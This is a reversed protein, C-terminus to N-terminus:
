VTASWGTPKRAAVTLTIGRHLRGALWSEFDDVPRWVKLRRGIKKKLRYLRSRRYPMNSWHAGLTAQELLSFGADELHRALTPQDLWNEVPQLGQTGAKYRAEFRANPTTLLLLGGPALIRFLDTIFPEHVPCHEIVESSVILRYSDDALPTPFSGDGAIVRTKPHRRGVEELVSPTVDFADVDGLSLSAMLPIFRGSGCGYDLVRPARNIAEVSARYRGLARLMWKWRRTEPPGLAFGSRKWLNLYFDDHSM